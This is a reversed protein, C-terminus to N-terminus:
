TLPKAERCCPRDTRSFHDQTRSLEIKGDVQLPDSANDRVLCNVRGRTNKASIARFALMSPAPIPPSHGAIESGRAPVFTSYLSYSVGVGERYSTSTCPRILDFPKM